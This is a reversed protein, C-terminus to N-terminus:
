YQLSLPFGTVRGDTEGEGERWTERTKTKARGRAGGRQQHRVTNITHHYHRAHTNVTVEGRRRMGGQEDTVKLGLTPGTVLVQQHTPTGHSDGRTESGGHSALGAGEEEEMIREPAPRRDPEDEQNLIMSTLVSRLGTCQM